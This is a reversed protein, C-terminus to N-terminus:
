PQATDDAGAPKAKLKPVPFVFRISGGRQTGRLYFYREGAAMRQAIVQREPALETEYAQRLFDAPQAEVLEPNDFGVSWIMPTNPPIVEFDNVILNFPIGEPRYVFSEGSFPDTIPAPLWGPTLEALTQPYTGYDLQYAVLALQVLLARRRTEEAVWNWTSDVYDFESEALFSTSFAQRLEQIREKNRGDHAEAPIERRWARLLDGVTETQGMGLQSGEGVALATAADVQNLSQTTLLDLARLARQKEGPLSNLFYYLQRTAPYRRSPQGDMVVARVHERNALVPDRPSPLRAFVHQLDVVAQKLRDSTQGPHAAWALVDAYFDLQLDSYRYQSGILPIAQLRQWADDLDGTASLLKADDALLTAFEGLLREVSYGEVLSYRGDYIPRFDSANVIALLEPIKARNAELGLRTAEAQFRNLIEVEAPDLEQLNENIGMTYGSYFEMARDSLEFDALMKGDLVVDEIRPEEPFGLHELKLLSEQQAKQRESFERVSEELPERLFHYAPLEISDIQAMRATPVYAVVVILPLVLATVPGVWYKWRDLQLIWSPVRLWTSLMAGIGIPLVFWLPNMQWAFMLISWAALVVSLLLAAFGSLVTQKLLMSCLQGIAYASIVACWATFMGNRLFQKGLDISSALSDYRQFTGYREYGKVTRLLEDGVLAQFLYLVILTAVVALLVVTGLWVLHRVLWVYRPWTAHTALFLRHDRQQDARFTLAGLLAPLFLSMSWLAYEENAGFLLSAPAMFATILGFTLPVAVL